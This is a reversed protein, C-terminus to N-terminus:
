ACCFSLAIEPLLTYDLSGRVTEQNARPARMWATVRRSFPTIQNFMMQNFTVNIKPPMRACRFEHCPTFWNPLLPVSIQVFEHERKPCFKSSQFM